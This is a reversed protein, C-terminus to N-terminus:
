LKFPPKYVRISQISPPTGTAKLELRHVGNSLGRALTIAQEISIDIKDTAEFEDVFQPIAKWHTALDKPIAGKFVAKCYELNWDEPEIAIRGSNSLFLKDSSGMGDEGTKSGIVEFKFLKGDESADFIKATWDEVLPSGRLTVRKIIPWNSNPYASARTTAFLEPHQSPPKGDILVSTHTPSDGAKRQVNQDLIVDARNGEFELVLRGDKWHVDEGVRFDRALGQWKSKPAKPLYRLHQKVLEAMVFCGWDNLHVSDKLLRKPELHNERLYRQWEVRQDLLEMDYRKALDPLFVRSMWQSWIAGNQKPLETPEELEEPKVIHDTQILVEATTRTRVNAILKEYDTHSGYVHFILLDPEFPYLDAEATRWLLQSSHGGIARNEIILNANPYSKRLWDAVDYSWKQETISQGYFLVRVTNRKEPTSTALLTMTRQIGTGFRNIDKPLSVPPFEHPDPAPSPPQAHVTQLLFPALLFLAFTLGTFQPPFLAQM